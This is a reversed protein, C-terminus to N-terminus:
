LPQSASSKYHVYPEPFQIMPVPIDSIDAVMALSSAGQESTSNMRVSSVMLGGIAMGFVLMIVDRLYKQVIIRKKGGGNSDAALSGNVNQSSAGSSIDMNLQYFHRNTLM